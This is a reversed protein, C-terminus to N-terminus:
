NHKSLCLLFNNEESKINNQTAILAIQLITQWNINDAIGFQQCKKSSDLKLIAQIWNSQTLRSFGWLSHPQRTEHMTKLNKYYWGITQARTYSNRTSRRGSRPATSSGRQRRNGRGPRASGATAQGLSNQIQQFMSQRTVEKVGCTFTLAVGENSKMVRSTGDSTGDFCRGLAIEKATRPDQDTVTYIGYNHGLPDLPALCPSSMQTMTSLRPLHNVLYEQLMSNVSDRKCSGQPM